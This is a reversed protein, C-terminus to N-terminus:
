AVPALPGTGAASARDRGPHGTGASVPDRAPEPAGILLATGCFLCFWEPCAGDATDPCQGAGPHPQIFVRAPGCEPCDGTMETM